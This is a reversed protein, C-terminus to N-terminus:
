AIRRTGDRRENDLEKGHVLLWAATLSPDKTTEYRRSACDLCLAGRSTEMYTRLGRRCVACIEPHNM